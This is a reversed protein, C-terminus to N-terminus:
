SGIVYHHREFKVPPPFVQFSFDALKSTNAFAPLSLSGFYGLRVVVASIAQQATPVLEAQWWSLTKFELDYDADHLRLLSTICSFSM